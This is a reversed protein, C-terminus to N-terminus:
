IRGSDLTLIGTFLLYSKRRFRMFQGCAGQRIHLVVAKEAEYRHCSPLSKCHDYKDPFFM